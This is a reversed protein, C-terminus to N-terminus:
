NHCSERWMIGYGICDGIKPEASHDLIQQPNCSIQIQWHAMKPHKHRLDGEHQIQIAWMMLSDQSKHDTQQLYFHICPITDRPTLKKKWSAFATYRPSSQGKMWSNRQGQGCLKQSPKTKTAQQQYNTIRILHTKIDQFIRISPHIPTWSFLFEGM